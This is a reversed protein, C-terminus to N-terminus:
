LDQPHQRVYAVYDTARPQGGGERIAAAVQGRHYASHLAVHQLVDEVPTRFEIGKSNRYTLDQSTQEPSLKALFAMWRQHLDEVASKSEDLSLAPWPEFIAPGEPELRSLWARQAGIVHGLIKLPRESLVTALGALAESNAWYDYEFLKRFYNSPDM